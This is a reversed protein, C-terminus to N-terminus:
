VISFTRNYCFNLRTTLNALLFAQISTQGESLSMTLGSDTNIFPKEAAQICQCNDISSIIKRLEFFLWYEYLLATNKSEGSYAEQEGEWNLQLALDVM